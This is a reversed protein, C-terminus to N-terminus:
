YGKRYRPNYKNSKIYQNYDMPTDNKDLGSLYDSYYGKNKFNQYNGLNSSIPENPLRLKGLTNGRFSGYVPRAMVSRDGNYYRGSSYDTIGGPLLRGTAASIPLRFSSKLFSNPSLYSQSNVYNGGYKYMGQRQADTQPQTTTSFKSGIISGKPLIWQYSLKQGLGDVQYPNDIERKAIMQGTTPDITTQMPSNGWLNQIKERKQEPTYNIMERREYNSDGTRAGFVQQGTNKNFMGYSKPMNKEMVSLNTDDLPVTKQPIPNQTRSGFFNTNLSTPLKWM